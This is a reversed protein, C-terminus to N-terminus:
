RGKLNWLHVGIIVVNLGVLAWLGGHVGSIIWLGSGLVGVVIGWGLRRPYLHIQLLTLLAATWEILFV